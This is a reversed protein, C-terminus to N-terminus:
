SRGRQELELMRKKLPVGGPASFGGIKGHSRLVRHCPIILPVPNNAMVRGVARAAKPRGAKRALRGYSITRGFTLTRCATLVLRAFRSLGHLSIVVDPDFDVPDGQFYAIIQEQLDRFLGKECRADPFEALIQDKLSHRDHVPLYTRLLSNEISVLGFYGWKTEFITYRITDQM